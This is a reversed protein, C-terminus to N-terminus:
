SLQHHHFPVSLGPVEKLILGLPSSSTSPLPAKGGNLESKMTYRERLPLGKGAARCCGMFPEWYTCGSQASSDTTLLQHFYLAEKLGRGMRCATTAVTLLEVLFPSLFGIPFSSSHCAQPVRKWGRVSARTLCSHGPLIRLNEKPHSSRCAM